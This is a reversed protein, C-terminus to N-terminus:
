RKQILFKTQMDMLIPGVNFVCRILDLLSEKTFAGLGSKEECVGRKSRCERVADIMSDLLWQIWCLITLGKEGGCAPDIATHLRGFSYSYYTPALPSHCPVFVLFTYLRTLKWQVCDLM